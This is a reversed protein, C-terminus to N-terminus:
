LMVPASSVGGRQHSYFCYRLDIFDIFFDILVIDQNQTVAALIIDVVFVFVSLLWIM